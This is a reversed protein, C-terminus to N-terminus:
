AALRLAEIYQSPGIEIPCALPQQFEFELMMDTGRPYASARLSANGSENLELFRVFRNKVGQFVEGPAFHWNPHTEDLMNLWALTFEGTGRELLLFADTLQYHTRCVIRSRLARAKLEEHFRRMVAPTRQRSFNLRALAPLTTNVPISLNCAPVVLRDGELHGHATKSEGAETDFRNFPLTDLGFRNKQIKGSLLTEGHKQVLFLGTTPKHLLSCGRGVGLLTTPETRAAIAEQM